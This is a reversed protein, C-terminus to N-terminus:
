RALLVPGPLKHLLHFSLTGLILEKLTRTHGVAGIVSLSREKLSGGEDLLIKEPDGKMIAVSSGAVTMEEFVVSDGDEAIHLPRVEINPFMEHLYEAWACASRSPDSDNVGVVMSDPAAFDSPVVLCSCDVARIAREGASGMLHNGTASDDGRRGLVLLNADECLRKIVEPFVGHELKLIPKAGREKAIAEGMALINSGRESMADSLSHVLDEYPAAGLVGCVDAFWPGNAYRVDVVHALVLECQAANALTAGWHAATMSFSSNDMAVVIKRLQGKM